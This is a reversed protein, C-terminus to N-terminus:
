PDVKRWVLFRGKRARERGPLGEEAEPPPPPARPPPPPLPKPQWVGPIPSSPRAHRSSGQKRCLCDLLYSHSPLGVQSSSKLIGFFHVSSSKQVGTGQRATRHTNGAMHNDWRALDGAHPSDLAPRLGRYTGWTCPRPIKCLLAGPDTATWGSGPCM